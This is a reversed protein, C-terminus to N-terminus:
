QRLLLSPSLILSSESPLLATTIFTFHLPLGSYNTRATLSSMSLPLTSIPSSIFILSPQVVTPLGGLKFNEFSTM